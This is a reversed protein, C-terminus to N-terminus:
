KSSPRNSNRHKKLTLKKACQKTDLYLRQMEQLFAIEEDVSLEGDTFMKEAQALINQALCRGRLHCVTDVQKMLGEAETRLYDADVKLLSALKEYVERYRPYCDGAEYRALTRRTIGLEKALAEQSFGNERRLSRLKEAFTM